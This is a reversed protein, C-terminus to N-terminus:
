LGVIQKINETTMGMKKMVVDGPASIGFRDIGIVKGKTGVYKYWGATVGAEMAYRNTCADPLISEKYAGPMREFRSVCPMSVIRVGPSDKFASVCHQLESGTAIVIALLPGVEKKVIYAGKLVGERRAEPSLMDDMQRLNQRSLILATPGDKRTVSAAYAGVTEEADAPRIVDLNPIVRLGAITEVPQHTPGDEGVGVSDHTFIYSVPLEALAAVRVAPRLYDAFVLFTAGSAKFIGDYAVGNLICGMAHERIGYHVNKGAYTKNHPSAGPPGFDGGGNIYNRTSSHLDASGSIYTPLLRSIEQIVKAGSVRTAEASSKMPPIAQFIEDVTITDKSVARELTKALGPNAVKWEGYTKEWAKHIDGNRKRVDAFLEKTSESVDFTAEEPRLRGITKRAEVVYKIGGEGHADSTGEVQKIGKGIKTKVIILKPQGNDNDKARQVATSIAGVDHGDDVRIVEWGQAEYRKGVDDRSTFDAAKDLTVGNDDYLVILNDLKNNSAFSASEASVGEQLCGDGALAFVHNDFIKHAPTNFMASALKGSMAFGVANSVGAGLPGTTADVGPTTSHSSPFEPHGPTMSNLQRFKKVEDLPLDYGSLHLWSYLFM